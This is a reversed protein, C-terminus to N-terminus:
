ILPGSKRRECCLYDDYERARKRDCWCRLAYRELRYSSFSWKRQWWKERNRVEEDSMFENRNERVEGDGPGRWLLGTNGRGTRVERSQSIGGHYRAVRRRIVVTSQTHFSEPQMVTRRVAVRNERRSRGVVAFCVFKRVTEICSSRCRTHERVM